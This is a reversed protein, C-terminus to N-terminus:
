INIVLKGKLLGDGLYQIAEPVRNLPYTKDIIVKLQENEFLQTLKNLNERGPKHILIGIKKTTLKSILSGVIAAQLIRLVAGGVITCSGNSTLAKKYKFVSKFAMLDIILDYKATHKTYDEKRYDFVYDAGLSKLLDFKEATDVCTVTAGINKAMQLALPGTSGGAGNILVHHNQNLDAKFEVSQLALVGGHPLAAAQEFTANKPKIALLREPACAYEAFAGFGSDSIDGFVEDGVKFSQVESGVAEVLGAIDIGIIRNKPKFVGFLLRYIRPKGTVLDYDWSNISSAKVKVLVENAKPSPIGVESYELQSPSGYKTHLIAKM